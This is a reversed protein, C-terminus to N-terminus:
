RGIARQCFRKKQSIEEFFIKQQQKNLIDTSLSYHTNTMNMTSFQRRLSMMMMMMMM